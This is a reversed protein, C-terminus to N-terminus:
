SPFPKYRPTERAHIRGADKKLGGTEVVMVRWYIKVRMRCM